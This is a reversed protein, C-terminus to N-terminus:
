DASDWTGSQPKVMALHGASRLGRTLTRRREGVVREAAGDVLILSGIASQLTTLLAAVESGVQADLGEIELLGRMAQELQRLEGGTQQTTEVIRPYWEPIGGCHSTEETMSPKGEIHAQRQESPQTAQLM